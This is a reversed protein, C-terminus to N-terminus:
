FPLGVAKCLFAVFPRTKDIEAALHDDFTSSTIVKQTLPQSAIFSKLRIDDAYPHDADYQAPVRKLTEDPDGL